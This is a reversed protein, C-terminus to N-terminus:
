QKMQLLQLGISSDIKVVQGLGMERNGVFLSLPSTASQEFGLTMGPTWQLLEKLQFSKRCVRISVQIPLSCLRTPDNGSNCIEMQSGQFRQIQQILETELDHHGTM